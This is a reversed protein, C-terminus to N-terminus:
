LLTAISFNSGVFQWEIDLFVRYHHGLFERFWNVTNDYQMIQYM